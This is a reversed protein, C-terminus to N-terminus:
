ANHISRLVSISLRLILFFLFLYVIFGSCVTYKFFYDDIPLLFVSPVLYIYVIFLFLTKFISMSRFQIHYFITNFFASFLGTLIFIGFIGFDAYWSRFATYVNGLIVGNVTRFEKHVIYDNFDILNLEKLNGLLSIFTEKGPIDSIVPDALYLDFLKIPAGIYVSLYEFISSGESFSSTRGVLLRVAYFLCLIIIFCVLLKILTGFGSFRRSGIPYRVLLYAVVLSAVLQLIALRNSTTICYIIYIPLFAFSILDKFSISHTKSINNMGIVPFVYTCVTILKTLQSLWGPLASEQGYSTYLRYTETMSSFNDAAGNVIGFNRINLFVLITVVACAILFAVCVATNLHITGSFLYHSGSSKAYLQRCFLGIITFEILAFCIFFVTQVSLDVSWIDHNILTFSYAVIFMFVVIVSPSIYDGNFLLYNILFLLILIIFLSINM